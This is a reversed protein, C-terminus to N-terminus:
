CVDHAVEELVCYATRQEVNQELKLVIHDRYTWIQADSLAPSWKHIRTTMGDDDTITEVNEPSSIKIRYGPLEKAVDKLRM